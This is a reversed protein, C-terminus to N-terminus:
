WCPFADVVVELVSDSFVHQVVEAVRWTSGLGRQREVCVRELATMRKGHMGRLAKSYTGGYGDAECWKAVEHGSIRMVRIRKCAKRHLKWTTGNDLSGQDFVFTCLKYLLPLAEHHIQRCTLVLNQPGHKDHQALFSPPALYRRRMQVTGEDLALEYIKNRLEPPLRLFPSNKQNEQTSTTILSRM